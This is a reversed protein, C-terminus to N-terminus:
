EGRSRLVRPSAAFTRLGTLRQSSPPQGKSATCRLGYRRESARVCTPPSRPTSPCHAPSTCIDANPHRPHEIAYQAYSRAAVAQAKAAEAPWLAPVEAPVVARLYEELLMEGPPTPRRKMTATTLM